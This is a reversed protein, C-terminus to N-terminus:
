APKPQPGDGLIQRAAARRMFSDVLLPVVTIFAFLAIARFRPDGFNLLLGAGLALVLEFVAIRAENRATEVLIEAHVAPDLESETYNFIRPGGSV